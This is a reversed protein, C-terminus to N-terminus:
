RVWAESEWLNKGEVKLHYTRNPTYIDFRTEDKDKKEMKKSKVPAEEDYHFCVTEVKKM